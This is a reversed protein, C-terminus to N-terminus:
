LRSFNCCHNASRQRLQSCASAPFVGQALAMELGRCNLRGYRGTDTLKNYNVRPVRRNDLRPLGCLRCAPNPDIFESAIPAMPTGYCNCYRDVIYQATACMHREGPAATNDVRVDRMSQKMFGCTFTRGNPLTFRKGPNALDRFGGGPPNRCVNCFRQASSGSFTSLLLLAVLLLIRQKSGLVTANFSLTTSINTSFM